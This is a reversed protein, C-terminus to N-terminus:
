EGAEREPAPTPPDGYYQAFQEADAKDAQHRAAVEEDPTRGEGYLQQFKADTKEASVDYEYRGMEMSHEQAAKYDANTWGPPVDEYQGAGPYRENSPNGDADWESDNEPPEAEEFPLALANIEEDSMDKTSRESDWYHEREEETHDVHNEPGNVAPETYGPGEYEPYSMAPGRERAEEYIREQEKDAWSYEPFEEAAESILADREAPDAVPVSSM